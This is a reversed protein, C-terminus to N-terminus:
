SRALIVTESPYVNPLRDVIVVTAITVASFVILVIWKRHLVIRLYHAPSLEISLPKSGRAPSPVATM